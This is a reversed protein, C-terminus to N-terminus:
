KKGEDLKAAMADIIEDKEKLAESQRYIVIDRQAVEQAKAAVQGTLSNIVLDKDDPENPQQEEQEERV